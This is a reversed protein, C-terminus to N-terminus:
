SKPTVVPTKGGSSTAQGLVYGAISALLTSVKDSDLRGVLALTVVVLVIYTITVFRIVTGRRLLDLMEDLKDKYAFILPISTWTVSICILGLTFMWKILPESLNMPQVPENSQFLTAFLQM